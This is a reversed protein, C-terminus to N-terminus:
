HLMRLCINVEDLSTANVVTVIFDTPGVFAVSKGDPSVTFAEPARKVGLAVINGLLRLLQYQNDSTDYLAISGLAGASYLFDACLNFALGIVAGRHQRYCCLLQIISTYDQSECKIKFWADEQICPESTTLCCIAKYHLFYCM